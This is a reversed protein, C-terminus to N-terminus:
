KGDPRNDARDQSQRGNIPIMSIEYRGVAEVAGGLAVFLFSM